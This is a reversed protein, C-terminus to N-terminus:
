IPNVIEKLKWFLGSGERILNDILDRVADKIEPNAYLLQFTEFCTDDIHYFKRRDSRKLAELYFLEVIRLTDKPAAKALQPMIQTLGYDGEIEGNTKELTLKLLEAMREATFVPKKHNIWFGFKTFPEPHNYNKL